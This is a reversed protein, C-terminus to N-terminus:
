RGSASQRRSSSSVFSVCAADHHLWCSEDADHRDTRVSRVATWRRGRLADALRTGMAADRLGILSYIAVFSGVSAEWDDGLCTATLVVGKGIRDPMGPLSM